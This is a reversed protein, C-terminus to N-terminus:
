LRYGRIRVKAGPWLKRLAASAILAAERSPYSESCGEWGRPTWIQCLWTM